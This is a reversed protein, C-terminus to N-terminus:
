WAGTRPTEDFTAKVYTVSVAGFLWPLPRAQAYLVTGIRTTPGISEFRADHAEFILDDNMKALFGTLALQLEDNKGIRSRLGVDASDVKTFPVDESAVLARAQPSRFGRGYSM